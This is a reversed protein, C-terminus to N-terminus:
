LLGGLIVGVLVSSHGDQSVEPESPPSYSSSKDEPIKGRRTYYFNISTESTSAAEMLTIDAVVRRLMGPSLIKKTDMKEFFTLVNQVYCLILIENLEPV